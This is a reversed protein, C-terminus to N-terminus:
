AKKRSRAFLIVAAAMLIIGGITFIYTGMGGTTPLSFGKKNNVDFTVRNGDVTGNLKDNGMTITYTFEAKENGTVIAEPETVEVVVKIPERLLIYGSPSKTEKIYYTGEGLGDFHVKGNEDTTSVAEKIEKIIQGDKESYVVLQAVNDTINGDPGAEYVTFEAGSLPNEGKEDKKVIEVAGTYSKTKDEKGSTIENDKGFTPVVTNVNTQDGDAPGFVADKNLKAKYEIILKEEAMVNKYYDKGDTSSFDFVVKTTGDEANKEPTVSYQDAPLLNEPAETNKYVNVSDTVFDLGKGLTDTIYFTVNKGDAYKPVDYTVHFTIEKGVQSAASDAQAADSEEITKEITLLQEKVTVPTEAKSIEVLMPKTEKYGEPVTKGTILYYGYELEVSIGLKTDKISTLNKDAIYKELHPTISDATDAGGFEYNPKGPSLAKVMDVTLSGYAPNENIDKFNETWNYDFADTGVEYSDMVKYISYEFEAKATEDKVNSNLTLTGKKDTPQGTTAPPNALEEAQVNVAMMSFAMVCMMFFSLIKAIKRKKKM